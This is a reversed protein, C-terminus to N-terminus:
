FERIACSRHTTHKQDQPGYDGLSPSTINMTYARKENEGTQSAFSQSASWYSTSSGSGLSMGNCLAIAADVTSVNLAIQYLEAISPLYWGSAYATGSVRSGEKSAYNKAYYFAPYKDASSTDSVGSFSGMTALNNKGNKRGSTIQGGTIRCSITSIDKNWANASADAWLAGTCNALGVGLRRVTDGDETNNCATGVYFIVAIAKEKDSASLSLDSAYPSASGDTFVIDNVVKALSPPKLGIYEKALTLSLENAGEAITANSLTGTLSLNANATGGIYVKAEAGVTVGVPIDDLPLPFASPALGAQTYSYGANGTVSVSISVGDALSSPIANLGILALTTSTGSLWHMTISLNNDDKQVTLPSSEGECLM